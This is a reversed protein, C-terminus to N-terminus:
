NSRKNRFLFKIPNFLSDIFKGIKYKRSNILGRNENKLDNIETLLEYMNLYQNYLKKHKAYVYARIEKRDNESFSTNRSSESIRYFFLIENIRYVKGQNSLLTILFEWDELGKKMLPDFGTTKDFDIRRFFASCFIINKRLLLDYSYNPLLWKGQKAGFNEAECYVLTLDKDSDLLYVAKELYTRGIKDDGDLPLIYDGASYKIATNRAICVGSNAQYYYKIKPEKSSYKEIINKSNDTSGDDIVICEWNTYTQDLVSDLCDSIYNEQNYCPVIISVLSQSEKM